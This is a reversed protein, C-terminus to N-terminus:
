ITSFQQIRMTSWWEQKIQLYIRSYAESSNGAKQNHESSSALLPDESLFPLENNEELM